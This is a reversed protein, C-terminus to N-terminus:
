AKFMARINQLQSYSENWGIAVVKLPCTVLQDLQSEDFRRQSFSVVNQETKKGKLTFLELKDISGQRDSIEPIGQWIRYPPEIIPSWVFFGLSSIFYKNAM